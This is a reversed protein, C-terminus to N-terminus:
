GLKNMRIEIRIEMRMIQSQPHLDSQSLPASQSPIASASPNRVRSGASAGGVCFEIGGFTKDDSPFDGVINIKTIRGRM